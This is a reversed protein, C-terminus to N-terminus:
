QQQEHYENELRFKLEEEVDHWEGLRMREAGGHAAYAANVLRRIREPIRPLMPAHLALAGASHQYTNTRM